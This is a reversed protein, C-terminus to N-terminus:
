KSRLCRQPSSASSDRSGALLQPGLCIAIRALSCPRRASFLSCSSLEPPLASPQQNRLWSYTTGKTDQSARPCPEVDDDTIAKPKRIGIITIWSVAISHPLRFFCPNPANGQSMARRFVLRSCKRASRKAHAVMPPKNTIASAGVGNNTNTTTEALKPKAGNTPLERAQCTGTPTHLRKLKLGWVERRRPILHKLSISVRMPQFLRTNSIRPSSEQFGHCMCDAASPCPQANRRYM